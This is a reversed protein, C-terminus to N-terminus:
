FCPSYIKLWHGAKNDLDHFDEFVLAPETMLLMSENLTDVNIANVTIEKGIICSVRSSV